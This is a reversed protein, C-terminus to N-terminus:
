KHDQMDKLNNPFYLYDCMFKYHNIILYFFIILEFWKWVIYHIVHFSNEVYIVIYINWLGSFHFFLLFQSAFQNM